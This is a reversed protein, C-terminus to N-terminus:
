LGQKILKGSAVRKGEENEIKYIFMGSPLVKDFVVKEGEFAQEHLLRGQVDYIKLTFVGKIDVTNLEFITVDTFPNPSITVNNKTGAETDQVALQIFNKGVIHQTTNTIVPANYDFYIGARNNIVTGLPNDRQQSIRYTFYGHSAAENHTSDLLNIKNFTVELVGKGTVKWTYAHSSAGMRLTSVDLAKDLADKVVVIFATDTGTNQFNIQYEIDTNRAVYHKAGYGTPFAIKENPDFSSINQRCDIDIFSAEDANAFQTVFGLSTPAAGCGEVAVTALTSGTPNFPSQEAVIRYTKGNAPFEFTQTAGPSLNLPTQLLLIQDEVVFCKRPQATAGTGINKLEFKVKNSICQGTAKLNSKDWTGSPPVCTSDPYIHAESCHTQGVVTSDCNVKVVVVFDNCQGIAVNGLEFRYKNGTILTMPITASQVELYPDFDITAYTNPSVITGKNCYTVTYTSNFCRRLRQTSLSIEMAPCESIVQLPINKTITDSNLAIVLPTSPCQAWLSNISPTITYTGTDISINYNGFQDTTTFFTDNASKITLITNEIGKENNELTCNKTEDNYLKGVLQNYSNGLSDMRVLIGQVSTDGKITFGAFYFSADKISYQGSSFFVDRKEVKYEKVFRLNGKKDFRFITMGGLVFTTFNYNSAHIVFGGDPLPISKFFAFISNINTNFTVKKSWLTNGNEDFKIFASSKGSYDIGTNALYTNDSLRCIDEIALYGLTDISKIWLPNGLSDIKAFLPHVQGNNSTSGGLITGNNSSPQVAQLFNFRFTDIVNPKLLSTGNKDIKKFIGKSLVAQGVAVLGGDNSIGADLYEGKEENNNAWLVNGLYDTKYLAAYNGQNCISRSTAIWFGEGKREKIIASYDGYYVGIAKEWIKNGKADVKLLYLKSTDGGCPDNPSIVIGKINNASLMYLFGDEAQLVDLNSGQKGNILFTKEWGQASVFLSTFLLAFFFIYNKM